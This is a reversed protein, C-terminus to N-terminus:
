STKKKKKPINSYLFLPFCDNYLLDLSGRRRLLHKRNFWVYMSALEPVLYWKGYEHPEHLKVSGMDTLM